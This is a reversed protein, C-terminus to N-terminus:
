LPNGPIAAVAPAKALCTISLTYNQPSLVAGDMLNDGRLGPIGQTPQVLDGSKVSHPANPMGKSSSRADEARIEAVGASASPGQGDGPSRDKCASM